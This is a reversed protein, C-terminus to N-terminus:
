DCGHVDTAVGSRKKDAITERLEEVKAALEGRHDTWTEYFDDESLSSFLATEYLDILTCYFTGKLMLAPM